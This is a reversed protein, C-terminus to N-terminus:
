KSLCLPHYIFLLYLCLKETSFRSLIPVPLAEKWRHRYGNKGDMIDPFVNHWDRNKMM